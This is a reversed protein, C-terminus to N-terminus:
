IASHRDDGEDGGWFNSSINQNLEPTSAIMRKMQDQLAIHAMARPDMANAMAAAEQEEIHPPMTQSPPINTGSAQAGGSLQPTM